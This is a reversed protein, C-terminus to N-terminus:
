VNRGLAFTVISLWYSTTYLLRCVSAVSYCLRSRVLYPRSFVVKHNNVWIQSNAFYITLASTILCIFCNATLIRFATCRLQLKQFPSSTITITHLVWYIDYQVTGYQVSSCTSTLPTDHACYPTIYSVTYKWDCDARYRLVTTLAIFAKLPFHWKEPDELEPVGSGIELFFNACNIVDTVEGLMCFNPGTPGFPAHRRMRSITM